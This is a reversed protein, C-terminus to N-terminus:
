KTVEKIEIIKVTKGTELNYGGFETSSIHRFPPNRQIMKSINEKNRTKDTKIKIDMQITVTFENM